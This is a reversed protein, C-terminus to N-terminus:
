KQIVMCNNLIVGKKVAENIFGFLFYKLMDDFFIDIRPIGSGTYEVHDFKNFLNMQDLTPYVEKLWNIYFLTLKSPTAYGEGGPGRRLVPIGIRSALSNVEAFYKSGIKLRWYDLRGADGFFSLMANIAISISKDESGTIGLKLRTVRKTLFEFINIKPTNGEALYLGAFFLILPSILVKKPLINEKKMWKLKFTDNINDVVRYGIRKNGYVWSLKKAYRYSNLYLISPYWTLWPKQNIKINSINNTISIEIDFIVKYFLEKFTNLERMDLEESRSGKGLKGGGKVGPLRVNPYLKDDSLLEKSVKLEDLVHRKEIKLYDEFIPKLVLFKKLVSRFKEYLKKEKYKQYKNENYVACFLEEESLEDIKSILTFQKTYKDKNQNMFEKIELKLESNSEFFYTADENIFLKFNINSFLSLVVDMMLLKANDEKQSFTIANKSGDGVYLGSAILLNSNITYKYPLIIQIKSRPANLKIQKNEEDLQYTFTKEYKHLLGSDFYESIISGNSEVILNLFNLEGFPYKDLIM